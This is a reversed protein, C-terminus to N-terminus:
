QLKNEPADAELTKNNKEELNTKSIQNFEERLPPNTIDKPKLPPNVEALKSAVETVEAQGCNFSVTARGGVPWDKKAVPNGKEEVGADKLQTMVSDLQEGQDVTIAVHLAEPTQSELAAKAELQERREPPLPPPPLEAGETSPAEVSKSEESLPAPPPPFDEIGLQDISPQVVAGLDSRGISVDSLMLFRYDENKQAYAEVRSNFNNLKTEFKDPDAGSKYESVLAKKEKLFEGVKSQISNHRAMAEESKIETVREKARLEAERRERMVERPSMLAKAISKLDRVAVGLGTGVLALVPGFKRGSVFDRMVGAWEARRSAPTASEPSKAAQEKNQKQSLAYLEPECHKVHEMYKAPEMDAAVTRYGFRIHYMISNEKGLQAKFEAVGPPISAGSKPTIKEEAGSTAEATVEDVAPEKGESVAEVPVEEMVGTAAAQEQPKVPPAVPPSEMETITPAEEKGKPPPAAVEAERASANFTSTEEKDKVATRNTEAVNATKVTSPGQQAELKALEDELGLKTDRVEKALDGANLEKIKDKLEIIKDERLLDEKSQLKSLEALNPSEHAKKKLGPNIKKIELCKKTSKNAIITNEKIKAKCKKTEENIYTNFTREAKSDSKIHQGKLSQIGSLQDEWFKIRYEALVQNNFAEAYENLGDAKLGVQFEEMMDGLMREGAMVADVGKVIGVLPLEVGYPSWDADPERFKFEALEKLIEKELKLNSM